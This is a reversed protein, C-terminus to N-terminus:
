IRMKQEKPATDYNKSYRSFREINFDLYIILFKESVHFINHKCFTCLIRASM